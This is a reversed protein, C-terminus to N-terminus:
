VIENYGKEEEGGTASSYDPKDDNKDQSYKEMAEVACYRELKEAMRKTIEPMGEITNVEKIYAQLLLNDLYNKEFGTLDKM